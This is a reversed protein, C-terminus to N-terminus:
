SKHTNLPPAPADEQLFQSATMMGISSIVVCYAMFLFQLDFRVILHSLETDFQPVRTGWIVTFLLPIWSSALYCHAADKVKSYPHAMKQYVNVLLLPVTGFTYPLMMIVFCEIWLTTAIMLSELRNESFLRTEGMIALSCLICVGTVVHTPSLISWLQHSFTRM